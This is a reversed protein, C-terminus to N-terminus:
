RNDALRWLQFKTYYRIAEDASAASYGLAMFRQRSERLLAADETDLQTGQSDLCLKIKDRISPLHKAEIAQSLEPITRWDAEVHREGTAIRAVALAKRVRASLGGRFEKRKADEKSLGPVLDEVEKLVEASVDVQEGSTRDNFGDRGRASALAHQYYQWFLQNKLAETEPFFCEDMVQKLWARFLKEILFTPMELAAVFKLQELCRDYMDKQAKTRQGEVGNAQVQLREIMFALAAFVSVRGEETALGMECLRNVIEFLMFSMNLGDFGEDVGCSTQILQVWHRIQDQSSLNMPLPTPLQKGKMYLELTALDGDNIRMRQAVTLDEFPKAPKQVMRSFVAVYALLHLAFPDFIPSRERSAVLDAYAKLEQSVSRNYGHATLWSRRVYAGPDLTSDLFAKWANQNTEVIIQGSYPTADDIVHEQVAQLLRHTEPVSGEMAGKAAFPDRLVAVHSGQMLAARLPVAEGSAPQATWIAIGYGNRTGLSIQVVEFEDLYIEGEKSDERTGYAREFCHQCPPLGTRWLRILDDTAGLRAPLARIEEEEHFFRLLNIAQCNNPCGDVVWFKEGKLLNLAAEILKTKGSGPPGILVGMQEELPHNFLNHVTWESGVIHQFARYSEIGLVKLFRVYSDDPPRTGSQRVRMQLREWVTQHVSPDSGLQSLFEAFPIRNSRVAKVPMLQSPAM